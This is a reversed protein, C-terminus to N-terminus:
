SDRLDHSARASDTTLSGQMTLVGPVAIRIAGVVIVRAMPPVLTLRSIM